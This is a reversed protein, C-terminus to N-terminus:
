LGVVSRVSPASPSLENTSETTTSSTLDDVVPDSAILAKANREDDQVTSFYLSKLAARLNVSTSLMPALDRINWSLLQSGPELHLILQESKSQSRRSSFLLAELFPEVGILRPATLTQLKLGSDYVTASGSLLALMRRHMDIRAGQPPASSKKAFRLLHVFELGDDFGKTAFCSLYIRENEPSLLPLVRLANNTLSSPLSQKTSNTSTRTNTSTLITQNGLTTSSALIAGASRRASGLKHSLTRSIALRIARAFSEDSKQFSYLKSHPWRVFLSGPEAVITARAAQHFQGNESQLNELMAVEGIIQFPPISAVRQGNTIVEFWGNVTCFLHEVEEGQVTLAQRNSFSDDDERGVRVWEAMDLLKLYQYAGVGLPEFCREFLEAELPELIGAIADIKNLCYRVVYYLNVIIFIINYGDPVLDEAMLGGDADYAIIELVSSVISILRYGVQNGITYSFFDAVYQPPHHQLGVTLIVFTTFIIIKDLLTLERDTVWPTLFSWRFEGRDISILAKLLRKRDLGLFDLIETMEEKEEKITSKVSSSLLSTERRTNIIQSKRREGGISMRLTPRKIQGHFCFVHRILLLLIMKNLNM